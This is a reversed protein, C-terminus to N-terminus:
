APPLGLSLPSDASVSSSGAVNAPLSRSVSSAPTLTGSQVSLQEVSLAQTLSPGLGQPSYGEPALDVGPLLGPWSYRGPNEGPLLSYGPGVVSAPSLPDM